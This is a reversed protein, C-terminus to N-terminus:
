FYLGFGIGFKAMHIVTPGKLDTQTYQMQYFWDKSYMMRGEISFKSGKFKNDRVKSPRSSSSLLTQSYFGNLIFDKGWLNFDKKAGIGIGTINHTKVEVDQGAITAVEETNFSAFSDHEIGGYMTFPWFTRKFGFKIIAGYYFPLPMPNNIQSIAEDMKALYLNGAISLNPDFQWDFSTGLTIPSDQNTVTSVNSNIVDETFINRSLTYYSSVKFIKLFDSFSELKRNLKERLSESKENIEKLFTVEKETLGELSAPMRCVELTEKKEAVSKKAFGIFDYPIEVYVQQGRKLKQQNAIDRNWRSIKKYYDLDDLIYSDLLAQDELLQRLSEGGNAEYYFTKIQPTQGLLVVSYFFITFPLLNRINKM